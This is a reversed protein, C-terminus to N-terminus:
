CRLDCFAKQAISIIASQVPSAFYQAAVLRQSCYGNRRRSVTYLEIFAHLMYSKKRVFSFILSHFLLGDPQINNRM